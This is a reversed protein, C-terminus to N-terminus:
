MRGERLPDVRTEQLHNPVSLRHPNRSAPLSNPNDIGIPFQPDASRSRPEGFFMQGDAGILLFRIEAGDRFVHLDYLEGPADPDVYTRTELIEVVQAKQLVNGTQWNTLSIYVTYLIPVIMFATMFILGPVIWKLARTRPSLYVWNVAITGILLSALFVWAGDSILVIIAYLALADVVALLLLRIWFGRGYEARTRSGQPRGTEQETGTM